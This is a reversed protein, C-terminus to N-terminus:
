LKKIKLRKMKEPVELYNESSSVKGGSKSELDKRATGAVEGGEQAATKNERFGQTDRNKAIETTSAEGLM